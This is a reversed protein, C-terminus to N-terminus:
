VRERRSARGIESVPWIVDVTAEGPWAPPDAPQRRFRRPNEVRDPRRSRQDPPPTRPAAPCRRPRPCRRGHLAQRDNSTRALIRITAIDDRNPIGSGGPRAALRCPHDATPSDQYTQRETSGPLRTPALSSIGPTDGCVLCERSSRRTTTSTCPGPSHITPVKEPPRDSCM